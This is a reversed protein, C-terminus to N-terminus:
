LKQKRLKEFAHKLLVRHMSRARKVLIGVTKKNHKVLAKWVVFAQRKGEKGGVKFGSIIRGVCTKRHRKDKEQLLKVLKKLQSNLDDKQLKWEHEKEEVKKIVEQRVEEFVDDHIRQIQSEQMSQDIEVQIGVSSTEIV